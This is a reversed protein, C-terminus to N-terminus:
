EPIDELIIDEEEYSAVLDKIANEEMMTVNDQEPAWRQKYQFFRETLYIHNFERWLTEPECPHAMLYLEKAHPFTTEDIWYYIFNKDCWEIYVTEAMFVPGNRFPHIDGFNGLIVVKNNIRKKKLANWQMNKGNLKVAKSKKVSIPYDSTSEM